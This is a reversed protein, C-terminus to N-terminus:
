ANCVCGKSNAVTFDNTNIANVYSVIANVGVRVDNSVPVSTVTHGTIGDVGSSTDIDVAPSSTVAGIITGSISCYSKRSLEMVKTHGGNTFIPANNMTLVTGDLLKYGVNTGEMDDRGGNQLRCGTYTISSGQFILRPANGVYGKMSFAGKVMCANIDISGSPIASLSIGITSDFICSNLSCGNLSFVFNRFRCGSAGIYEVAVFFPVTWDFDIGNYQTNEAGRTQMPGGVFGGSFAAPTGVPIFITSRPHVAVLNNISGIGYSRLETSVSTEASFASAGNDAEIWHSVDTIGAHAAIGTLELRLNSGATAVMDTGAAFTLFPSSRDAWFTISAFAPQGFPEVFTGVGCQVTVIATSLSGIVDMARQPNRWATGVTLGDNDDDGSTQVHVTHTGTDYIPDSNVAVWKISDSALRYLTLDSTVLVRMGVARRGTQINDRETLDAVVRYGGKLDTDIAVPFNGDNKPAVNDLLDIPM